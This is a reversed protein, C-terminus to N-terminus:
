LVQTIVILDNTTYRLIVSRPIQLIGALISNLFGRTSPLNEDLVFKSGYFAANLLPLSITPRLVGRGIIGGIISHAGQRICNITGFCIGLAGGEVLAYLITSELDPQLRRDTFKNLMQHGAVPM